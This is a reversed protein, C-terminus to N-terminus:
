GQWFSLMCLYACYGMGWFRYIFTTPKDRKETRITQQLKHRKLITQQQETMSQVRYKKKSIGQCFLAFFWFSFFLDFFGYWKSFLCFTRLCFLVLLQKGTIFLFIIYAPTFFISPSSKFISLLIMRLLFLFFSLVPFSTPVKKSQKEPSKGGQTHATEQPNNPSQTSAYRIERIVRRSTPVPSNIKEKCEHTLIQPIKM